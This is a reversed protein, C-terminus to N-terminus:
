MNWECLGSASNRRPDCVGCPMDHNSNATATPQQSKPKREVSRECLRSASRRAARLWPLKSSLTVQSTMVASSARARCTCRRMRLVRTHQKLCAGQVYVRAHINPAQLVHLASSMRLMHTQHMTYMHGSPIGCAPHAHKQDTVVCRLMWPVRSICGHAGHVWRLLTGTKEVCGSMWQLCTGVEVINRDDGLNIFKEFQDEMSDGDFIDFPGGPVNVDVLLADFEKGVEFSGVKDQPHTSKVMMFSDSLCVWADLCPLVYGLLAVCVRALCCAGLCPLPLVCGFLPVHVWAPCKCCVGLCRFWCPM